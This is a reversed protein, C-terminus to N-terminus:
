QIQEISPQKGNRYYVDLSREVRRAVEYATAQEHDYGDSELGFHMEAVDRYPNDAGGTAVEYFALSVARLIRDFDFPVTRGDRKTVMRTTIPTAPTWVSVPLETTQQNM